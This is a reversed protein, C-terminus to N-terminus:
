RRSIAKCGCPGQAMLVTPADAQNGTVWADGREYQCGYEDHLSVPHGCEECLEPFEKRERFVIWTVIGAIAFVTAFILLTTIAPDLKM